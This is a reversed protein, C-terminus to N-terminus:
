IHDKPAENEMRRNESCLGLYGSAQTGLKKTVQSPRTLLEPWYAIFLADPFSKKGREHIFSGGKRMEQNPPQHVSM